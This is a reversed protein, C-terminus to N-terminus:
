SPQVVEGSSSGQSQTFDGPGRACGMAASSTVVASLAACGVIKLAQKRAPRVAMTSSALVPKTAMMVFRRYVFASSAFRDLTVRTVSEIAAAM